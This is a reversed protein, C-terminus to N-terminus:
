GKRSILLPGNKFGLASGSNLLAYSDAIYAYAHYNIKTIDIETAFARRNLEEVDSM